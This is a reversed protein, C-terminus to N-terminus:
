SVMYKSRTLFYLCTHVQAVYSFVTYATTEILLEVRKELEVEEGLRKAEPVLSEDKSGPTLDMGKRLIAVFNAMSYHYCRDLANLNDILFYVLSGRSAVPRYVERAKSIDM